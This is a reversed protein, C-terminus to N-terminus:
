KRPRGVRRKIGATAAIRQITREPIGLETSLKKYPWKPHALLASLVRSTYKARVQRLQETPNM